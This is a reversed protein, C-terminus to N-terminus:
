KNNTVVILRSSSFAVCSNDIVVDAILSSTNKWALSDEGHGPSQRALSQSLACNRGNVPLIWQSDHYCRSEKSKDVMQFPSHMRIVEVESCLTMPPTVSLMAIVYGWERM